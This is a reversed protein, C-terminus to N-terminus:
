LTINKTKEANYSKGSGPQDWNVVVFHKELEALEHRVAAMQTGGPGGALFLLVTANKDWGRLSIWQKRGNLELERLEAISNKPTNGNEDGIRPTSATIQSFTILGANLVVMVAFFIMTKKLRILHRPTIKKMRGIIACNATLILLVVLTLVALVTLILFLITQIV